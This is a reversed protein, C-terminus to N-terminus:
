AETGPVAAAGDGQLVQQSGQGPKRAALARDLQLLAHGENGALKLDDALQAFIQEEEVQETLFWQLQIQTTFDHEDTALQYISHFEETVERERTRGAEAIALPSDFQAPPASISGLAISGGRALILDFLRLGHTQEEESQVRMWQAFGNLNRAAFYGAMALYLLSAEFEKTMRANLAQQMTGSLM